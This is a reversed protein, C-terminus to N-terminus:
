PVVARLPAEVILSAVLTGAEISKLEFFIAEVASTRVYMCVYMCVYMSVYMCVLMCVYM